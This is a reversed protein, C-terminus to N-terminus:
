YVDGYDRNGYHGAAGATSDAFLYVEAVKTQRCVLMNSLVDGGVGATFLELRNIQHSM